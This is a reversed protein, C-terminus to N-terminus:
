HDEWEGDDFSEVFRGGEMRTGGNHKKTSGREKEVGKGKGKGEGDDFARPLLALRVEKQKLEHHVPGALRTARVQDKAVEPGLCLAQLHKHTREVLSTPLSYRGQRERQTM